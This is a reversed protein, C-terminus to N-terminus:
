TEKRERNEGHSLRRKRFRARLKKPFVARVTMSLFLLLTIESQM